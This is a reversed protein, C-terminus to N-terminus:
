SEVGNIEAYEQCLDELRARDDSPLNKLIDIRGNSAGIWVHELKIDPPDGPLYNGHGKDFFDPKQPTYAFEILMSIPSVHRDDIEYFMKISGRTVMKMETSGSVM